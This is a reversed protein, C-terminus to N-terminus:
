GARVAAARVLATGRRVGPAPSWVVLGPVLRLGPRDPGVPAEVPDPIGPRPREGTCGGPTPPERLPKTRVDEESSSSWLTRVPTLPASVPTRPRVQTDPASTCTRPNDVDARSIHQNDVNAPVAHPYGVSSQEPQPIDVHSIGALKVGVRRMHRETLGLMRAIRARVPPSDAGLDQLLHYVLKETPALGPHELVADNWPM